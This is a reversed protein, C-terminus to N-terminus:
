GRSATGRRAAGSRSRREVRGTSGDPMRGSGVIGSTSPCYPMQKVPIPAGPHHGGVADERHGRLIGAEDDGAHVLRSQSLLGTGRREDENALSRLESPEAVTPM